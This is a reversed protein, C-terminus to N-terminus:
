LFLVFSVNKGPMFSESAILGTRDNLSIVLSFSKKNITTGELKKLSTKVSNDGKREGETLKITPVFPISFSVRIVM